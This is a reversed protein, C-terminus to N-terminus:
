KNSSWASVVHLAPNGSVKDFSRRLSKGDISIIDESVSNSLASVWSILSTQFVLPDILSFVRRFTDHSAIGNELELFKSFWEIKGNGFDEIDVWSKAGCIVSCLAVVIIDLLEHKKNHDRRPDELEEFHEKFSISIM